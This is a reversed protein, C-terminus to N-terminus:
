FSTPDRKGALGISRLNPQATMGLSIIIQIIFIKFKIIILLLFKIIQTIFLIKKIIILLTLIFITNNTNYIINNKSYNFTNIYFITSNMNYINNNNSYNITNINFTTNKTNYISYLGPSREEATNKTLFQPQSRQIQQL